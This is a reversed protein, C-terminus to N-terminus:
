ANMPRRYVLECTWGVGGQATRKKGRRTKRLIRERQADDEPRPEGGIREADVGQM